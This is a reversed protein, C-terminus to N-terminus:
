SVSAIRYRDLISRQRSDLTPEFRVQHAGSTVSSAGGRGASTVLEAAVALVEPPCTEYGHTINAVVGRLKRTWCGARRVMGSESWEPDVVATGDNTISTVATLHLTPLFLVAAGSGDVTIPEPVSPAVHWRCYARVAGCAAEWDDADVGTPAEALPVDVM